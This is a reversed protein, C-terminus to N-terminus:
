VADADGVPGSEAVEMREEKKHEESDRLAHRGMQDANRPDDALTLEQPAGSTGTTGKGAFRRREDEDMTAFEASTNKAM